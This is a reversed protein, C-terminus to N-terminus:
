AQLQEVLFDQGDALVEGVDLGCVALAEVIRHLRRDPVAVGLGGLLPAVEGHPPHCRRLVDERDEVLEKSRVAGCGSPLCVWNAVTEVLFGDLRRPLMRGSNSPASHVKSSIRLTCSAMPSIASPSSPRSM